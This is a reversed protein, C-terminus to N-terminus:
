VEELIPGKKKKKKKKSLSLIFSLFIVDGM